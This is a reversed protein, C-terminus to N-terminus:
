NGQWGCPQAATGECRFARAGFRWHQKCIGSAAGAADRPTMQGGAAGDQHQQRQRRDGQRGGRGGHRNDGKHAPRQGGGSSSSKRGHQVANVEGDEDEPETQEVVAVLGGQKHGHLSLLRDAHEALRLIDEHDDGELLVRLWAPLRKLFFFVFFCSNEEDDPCVEMMEALLQSPRRSGLSGLADLKEIRQYKTLSHQRVLAEKLRTYPEEADPNRVATFCLQMVEKSLAAVVFDFRDWEDFIGKARFRSEAHAFWGVANDIWFPPLTVNRVNAQQAAM